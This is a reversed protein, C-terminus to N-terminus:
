REYGHDAETEPEHERDRDYRRDTRERLRDRERRQENERQAERAREHAREQDKKWDAFRQPQTEKHIEAVSQKFGRLAERERELREVLPLDEAAINKKTQTYAERLEAVREARVALTPEKCEAEYKRRLPSHKAEEQAEINRVRITEKGGTREVVEEFNRTTTKLSIRESIHEALEDLSKFNSQAVVLKLSEKSRSMAVFALEASASRDIVAVCAAVSAGQSKHVSLANAHDWAKYARPSFGIKRGDLLEVEIRSRMAATVIGRDGNLVGLGRKGQSNELFVFEDGAALQRYGGTTLYRLGEGERGSRRRDEESLHRVSDKDAAVLLADAYGSARNIRHETVAASLAEDRDETWTIAGNAELTQLADKVMALRKAGDREVIADAMTAVAERHWANRQRQINRLEFHTGAGQAVDRIIRASAGFDIPQLQRTDYIESVVCGREKALSLIRGNARSDMMAAEDVVVIGRQPIVATGNQELLEARSSNVCRFGAESELREAAAQSLTIGVVERQTQEGLVRVVGQITTKGVGPLGEISLLSGRSLGEIATRQEDSLHFAKGVKASQEAEYTAIAKEIQAPTIGSETHALARADNALQDEVALVDTTTMVPWRADVDLVRVSEDRCVADGLREIAEPDSIRQALWADVDSRDFTSSQATVDRLVIGPDSEVAAIVDLEADDASRFHRLSAPLEVLDPAPKGARVAAAIEHKTREPDPTLHLADRLTVTDGSKEKREREAVEAAAHQAKLEAVKADIEDPEIGQSKLAARLEIIERQHQYKLEAIGVDRLLVEGNEGREIKTGHRASVAHLDAWSPERGRERATDIAAILRPGLTADAYRAFTVDRQRYGEFSRREMRLLREERRQSRWAALEAPSAEEVRATSTGADRVVYLGNDHELGNAIEVEREAKAMRKFLGTRDYALGTEPDVAGVACHVHINETDRHVVVVSRHHDLDLKELVQGVYDHVQEDTLHKTEAESFSWVFHMAADRVGANGLADSDMELAATSLSSCNRVAISSPRTGHGAEPRWIRGAGLDDRAEAELYVSELAERIQEKSAGKEAVAYGVLYEVLSGASAGGKPAKCLKGIM